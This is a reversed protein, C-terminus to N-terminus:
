KGPFITINRIYDRVHVILGTPDFTTKTLELTKGAADVQKEYV